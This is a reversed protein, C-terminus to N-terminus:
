GNRGDAIMQRVLDIRSPKPAANSRAQLARSEAVAQHLARTTDGVEKELSALTSAADRVSIYVSQETESMAAFDSPSIETFVGAENFLSPMEFTQTM